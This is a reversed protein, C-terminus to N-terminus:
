TVLHYVSPCLREDFYGATVHAQVGKDKLADVVGNITENIVENAGCVCIPPVGAFCAPQRHMTIIMDSPVANKGDPAILLKM